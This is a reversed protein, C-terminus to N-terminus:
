NEKVYVATRWVFGNTATALHLGADALIRELQTHPHIFARFDSRRLKMTTNISFFGLKAWFTERPFVLALAKQSKAAAAGLLSDPDHYCCVVRDLTVLDVDPIQRAVEVFDGASYTVRDAYGQAEAESRAAALYAASADVAFITKVGQEALEHQIGGVGGGVDLLSKFGAGAERILRLLKSTQRAPGRRRYRKLERRAIKDDFIKEIGSCQTCTM